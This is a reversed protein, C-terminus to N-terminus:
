IALFVSNPWVLVWTVLTLESTLESGTQHNESPCLLSEVFVFVINRNTTNQHKTNNENNDSSDDDNQNQDSDNSELFHWERTLRQSFLCALPVNQQLFSTSEM